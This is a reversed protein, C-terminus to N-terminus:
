KGAVPGKEILQSKADPPYLTPTEADTRGISRCSPLCEGQEKLDVKRPRTWM